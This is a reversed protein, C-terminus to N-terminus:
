LFLSTAAYWAGLTGAVTLFFTPSLSTAANCYDEDDCVYRKWEFPLFGNYLAPEPPPGTKVSLPTERTCRRWICKRKGIAFPDVEFGFYLGRGCMEDPIDTLVNKECGGQRDQPCVIKMNPKALTAVCKKSNMPYEDAGGLLALSALAAFFLAASPREFVTRRAAM